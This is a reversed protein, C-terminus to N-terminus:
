LSMVVSEDIDRAGLANRRVSILSRVGQGLIMGIPQLALDSTLSGDEAAAGGEPDLFAIFVDPDAGVCCLPAFYVHLANTLDRGGADVPDVDVNGVPHGVEIAPFVTPGAEVVVRDCSEFLLGAQVRAVGQFDAVERIRVE